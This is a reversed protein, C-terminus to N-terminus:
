VDTRGNLKEAIKKWNKAEYKTVARKLELDEEKTWHGKAIWKLSEENMITAHSLPQLMSGPPMSRKHKKSDHKNWKTEEEYLSDDDDLDPSEAIEIGDFSFQNTMPVPSKSRAKPKWHDSSQSNQSSEELAFHDKKVRRTRGRSSVEIVPQSGQNEDMNEKEDSPRETVPKAPKEVTPYEQKLDVKKPRARSTAKTKIEEPASDYVNRKWLMVRKAATRSDKQVKKKAKLRAAM